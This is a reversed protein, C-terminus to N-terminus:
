QILSKTYVATQLSPTIQGLVENFTQLLSTSVFVVDEPKLEFDAALNLADPSRLNLYYIEPKHQYNRIVYTYRPDSGDTLGRADGIAEKLTMEGDVMNYPGQVSVAGLVFIRYQNNNPVRIVDGNQLIWNESNGNAATLNNLNVAVTKNGRQLTIHQLDACLSAVGGQTDTTSVGCLIPGGAATIANLVTLPVNTLPIVSSSKVAGTVEVKQSNFGIVQVTVQPNLIFKSLKDTIVERAQDTTLGGVHIYGVYPYFINGATNVTVGAKNSSLGQSLSAASLATPSTNPSAGGTDSNDGTTLEPHGWIVISLVDQPGIQYNYSSPDATFTKPPLYNKSQLADTIAQEHMMKQILSANIPTIDPTVIDGQHNVTPTLASTNMHMGPAACGGLLLSTSVIGCLGLAKLHAFLKREFVKLSSEVNIRNPGFSCFGIRLAIM